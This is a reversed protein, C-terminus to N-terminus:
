GERSLKEKIDEVLPAKKVKGTPTMPLADVIELRQPVKYMMVQQEQLFERIDDLTLTAGPHLEVYACVREGM